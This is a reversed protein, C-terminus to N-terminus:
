SIIMFEDPAATEKKETLLTPDSAMVFEDPDSPEKSFTQLSSDETPQMPSTAYKSLIHKKM